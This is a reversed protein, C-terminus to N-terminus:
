CQRRFKKEPMLNRARKCNYECISNASQTTGAVICYSSTPAVNLLRREMRSNAAKEWQVVIPLVGVLRITTRVVIGFSFTGGVERVLPHRAGPHLSGSRNHVLLIPIFQPFSLPVHDVLCMQRCTNTLILLVRPLVSAKLFRNQIFPYHSLKRFVIGGASSTRSAIEFKRGAFHSGTRGQRSFIRKTEQADLLNPVFSQHGFM